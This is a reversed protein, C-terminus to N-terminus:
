TNNVVVVWSTIKYLFFPRFFRIVRVLLSSQWNCTHFTRKSVKNRERWYAGWRLYVFYNRCQLCTWENKWTLIDLIREERIFNKSMRSLLFPEDFSNHNTRTPQNKNHDVYRWFLTKLLDVYFLVLENRWPLVSFFWLFLSDSKFLMIFRTLFTLVALTHGPHDNQFQKKHFLKIIPIFDLPAFKFVKM